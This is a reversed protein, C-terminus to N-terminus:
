PVPSANNKPTDTLHKWLVSAHPDSHGVRPLGVRPTPLVMRYAPPGSLVSVSSLCTPREKGQAPLCREGKSTLVEPM